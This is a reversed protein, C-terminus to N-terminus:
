VFRTLYEIGLAFKVFLAVGGDVASSVLKGFFGGVFELRGALRHGM